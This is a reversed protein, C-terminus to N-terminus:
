REHSLTVVALLEENYRRRCTVYAPAKVSVDIEVEESKLLRLYQLLGLFFPSIVDLSLVFSSLSRQFCRYLPVTIHM